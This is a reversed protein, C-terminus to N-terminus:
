TLYLIYIMGSLMVIIGIVFHFIKIGGVGDNGQASDLYYKWEDTEPIKKGVLGYILM